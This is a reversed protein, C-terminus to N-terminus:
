FWHEVQVGMNLGHNQNLFADGGMAPNGEFDKGWQAYTCFLRFEPRSDFTPAPAIRLAVTFKFLYSNFGYQRNDVYDLGPELEIGIHKHFHYIPRLGLSLWLQDSPGSAGSDSYQAAGDIEMCFRSSVQRGYMETTRVISARSNGDGPPNNGGAALSSNCGYGYQLAVQNAADGRKYQHMLGLDIGAQSPYRYSSGASNTTTGGQMYGGNVWATLKGGASSLESVMLNLNNKALRGNETIYDYAEKNNSNWFSSAAESYGLYAIHMRAGGLEIDELGGGYGSMDYWWFDNLNLEPLRYFREGAWVKTTPNSELFNGMRAFAQRLIMKNSEDWSKNEQAQFAPLFETSITPGDNNPNWNKEVFNAEFYTEEENGLRYKAPAGPAQFAQMHGGKGNVGYGARFYAHWEFGKTLYDMFEGPLREMARGASEPANDPQSELSTTEYYNPTQGKERAEQTDELAEMDETTIAQREGQRRELREIKDEIQRLARAHDRKMQEMQERLSAVENTEAALCLTSLPMLLVPCIWLCRRLSPQRIIQM